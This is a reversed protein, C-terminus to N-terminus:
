PSPVVDPASPKRGAKKRILPKKGATHTGVMPFFLGPRM